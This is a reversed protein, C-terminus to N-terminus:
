SEAFEVDQFILELRGDRRDRQTSGHGWYDPQYDWYDPQYDMRWSVATCGHLTVTRGDMTEVIVRRLRGDLAPPASKPVEIAHRTAIIDAAAPPIYEPTASEDEM